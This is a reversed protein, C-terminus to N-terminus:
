CGYSLTELVSWLQLNPPTAGDYFALGFSGAAAISCTIDAPSLAARNFLPSKLTATANSGDALPNGALDTVTYTASITATASGAVGGDTTVLVPFAGVVGGPCVALLAPSGAANTAWGVISCITWSGVTLPPGGLIEGANVVIVNDYGPDTLNGPYVESGATYTPLGEFRRAGYNGKTLLATIKVIFVMQKPTTITHHGVGLGHIGRGTTGPGPKPEYSNVKQIIRNVGAAVPKLSEISSTWQDLKGDQPM